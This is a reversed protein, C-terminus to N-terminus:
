LCVGVLWYCAGLRWTRVSLVISKVERLSGRGVELLIHGSQIILASFAGPVMCQILAPMYEQNRHDHQSKLQVNFLFDTGLLDMM